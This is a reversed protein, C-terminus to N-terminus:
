LIVSKTKRKTESPIAIPIGCSPFVIANTPESDPDATRKTNGANRCINHMHSVLNLNQVRTEIQLSM